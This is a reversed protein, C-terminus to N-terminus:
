EEQPSLIAAAALLNLIPYYLLLGHATATSGTGRIAELLVHQVLPFYAFSLLLYALLIAKTRRALVGTLLLAFFLIQSHDWIKPVFLLLFPITIALARWEDRRLRYVLLAYLPLALWLIWELFPLSSPENSAPWRGPPFEYRAITSQISVQNFFYSMADGTQDLMTQVYTAYSGVGVWPLSVLALLLGAIVTAVALRRRGALLIPLLFLGIYAKLHIALAWFLAASLDRKRAMFFLALAVFLGMHASWNQYIFQNTVPDTVVFAVCLLSKIWLSETRELLMFLIGGLSLLILLQNVFRASEFSLRSLSTAPKLFLPSYFFPGVRKGEAAHLETHRANIDDFDYTSAPEGEAALHGATYYTCFDYPPGISAFVMLCGMTLVTAALHLAWRPYNDLM